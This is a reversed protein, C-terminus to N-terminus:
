LGRERAIRDYAVNIRALRETAVEILEAPMGGGIHLDPHNERVLRRYHKRIEADGASRGIGLIAYPDSGAEFVHRARIRAFSHEDFGFIGAVQELYLLEREHVGGDAKAIHFLSDLVDELIQHGGGFLRALQRAYFDYGAVDGKAFDFLRNVNAFEGEPVHFVREFASIEDGTVVGDAKAMKACLAILGVTFAVSKDPSAMRVDVLRAFFGALSGGIAAVTQAARSWISM